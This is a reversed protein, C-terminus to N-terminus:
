YNRYVRGLTEKTQRYDNVRCAQLEPEVNVDVRVLRDKWINRCAVFEPAKTRWRVIGVSRGGSTPSTLAYL